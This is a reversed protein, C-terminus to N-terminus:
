IVDCHVVAMSRLIESGSTFLTYLPLSFCILYNNIIIITLRDMLITFLQDPDSVIVFLGILVCFWKISLPLSHPHYFCLNHILM